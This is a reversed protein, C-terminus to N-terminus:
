GHGQDRLLAAAQQLAAAGGGFMAALEQRREDGTVVRVTVGTVDADQSKEVVVHVAAAAAVQPTHTVTLLSRGKSLRRLCDAVAQGLRAGVGADIEDLILVPMDDVDSLAAALALSIRAGEGGSPVADLDGAPLGPNTAVQLRTPRLAMSSPREAEEIALCFDAKPMGLAALERRLREALAPFATARASELRRGAAQRAATARAVEAALQERRQELGELAVIRERIREWEALLRGEDGGHKRQAALLQALRQDLAALRQPDTRIRDVASSVYRLAEVLTEQAQQLCLGAQLLEEDPAGQLRKGMVGLRPLVADDGEQLGDAVAAAALRWDEAGSLLAQEAELQAWEGQQPALVDLEEVQFRLWDLEKLSNRDDERLAREEAQLALCSEHATAYAGALEQLGCARDILALQVAPDALRLHEGQARVEFVLEGLRRLGAVAVPQDDIWAQSRGQASIRRRVVVQSSELSLGLEDQLLQRRREDLQLIASVVCHDARPGVIAASARGGRLLELADLLLSKGAGTEGTIACLGQGPRVVAREVIVLNSIQLEQLV